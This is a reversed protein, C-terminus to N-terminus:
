NDLTQTNTIKISPSLNSETFTTGNEMGGGSGYTLSDPHSTQLATIQSEQLDFTTVSWAYPAGM